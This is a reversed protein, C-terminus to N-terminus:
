RPVKATDSCLKPVKERQNLSGYVHGFIAHVHFFAAVAKTCTTRWTLRERHHCGVVRKLRRPREFKRQAFAQMASFGIM